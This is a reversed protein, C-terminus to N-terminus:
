LSREVTYRQTLTLGGADDLALDIGVATVRGRFKEGLDGDEVEVVDGPLIAPGAHAAEIEYIRKPTGRDDLFNRGLQTGAAQSTALDNVQEDPAPNSGAGRVVLIRM